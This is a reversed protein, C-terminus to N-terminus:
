PLWTGLLERHPQHDRNWLRLLDDNKYDFLKRTHLNQTHGDCYVINWRNQHRKRIFLMDSRPTIIRNTDLVYELGWFHDLDSSGVAAMAPHSPTADLATIPADGMAIMSSPSFVESEPVRRSNLGTGPDEGMLGLGMAPSRASPGAANYGYTGLDYDFPTPSWPINPESIVRAYSPCQFVGGGGVAKGSFVLNNFRANVYPEIAPVWQPDGFKGFPYAGNDQVYMHLAIGFQRLNYKCATNLASEKARSLAPLLLAALIAITAIVVLLEILTFAQRRGSGARGRLHRGLFPM